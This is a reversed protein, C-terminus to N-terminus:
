GGQNELFTTILGEISGWSKSRSDADWSDYKVKADPNNGFTSSGGGGCGITESGNGTSFEVHSIGSSGSFFVPDGRQPNSTAPLKGSIGSATTDAWGILGCDQRLVYLVFGSCDFYSPGDAGWWYLKGLHTDAAGIVADRVTEYAEVGAFESGSSVSQATGGTLTSATQPGVVGDATLGNTQQFSLVAAHTLSGFDGDVTISAGHENLLAQLTSVLPGNDGMGLMPEGTLATSTDATGESSASETTTSEESAQSTSSQSSSGSQLASATMPGVIGDSSLGNSSQFWTVAGQTLAGFDGDVALSAGFLNLLYQLTEVLEGSSGYRLMPSGSIVSSDTSYRHIRARGGRAPELSPVPGEFGSEAWQRFGKGAREAAAEGPDGPGDILTQGSGGSALAHATEHAFIEMSDLDGLNEKLGSGFQMQKGETIARAGIPATEADAGTRASLCGLSLGFSEALAENLWDNQFPGALQGTSGAAQQEQVQASIFANGRGGRSQGPQLELTEEQCRPHVLQKLSV